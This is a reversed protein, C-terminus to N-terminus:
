RLDHKERGCSACRGRRSIKTPVSCACKPDPAAWGTPSVPGLDGLACAAALLATTKM